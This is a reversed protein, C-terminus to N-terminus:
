IFIIYISIKIFITINNFNRINIFIRFLMSIIIPLHFTYLFKHFLIFFNTIINTIIIDTIIIDTIITDTIITDTIIINFTAQNMYTM